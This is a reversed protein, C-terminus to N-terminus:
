NDAAFREDRRAKTVLSPRPQYSMTREEQQETTQGPAEAVGPSEQQPVVEEHVGDQGQGGQVQRVAPRDAKNTRKRRRKDASM